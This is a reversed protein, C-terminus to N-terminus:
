SNGNPAKTDDIWQSYAGWPSNGVVRYVQYNRLAPWAVAFETASGPQDPRVDEEGPGEAPGADDVQAQQRGEGTPAKRYDLRCGPRRVQREQRLHQLRQLHSRGQELVRLRPRQGPSAGPRPVPSPTSVSAKTSATPTACRRSTSRTTTSPTSRPRSAPRLLWVRSRRQTAHSTPSSTPPSATRSSTSATPTAPPRWCSRLRPSTTSTTSPTKASTRARRTWGPAASTPRCPQTGRTTSPCAAAVRLGPRQLLRRDLDQPGMSM